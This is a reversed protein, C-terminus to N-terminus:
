SRGWRTHHFYDADDAAPEDREREEEEEDAIKQRIFVVERANVGDRAGAVRCEIVHVIEFVQALKARPHLAIRRDAEIM